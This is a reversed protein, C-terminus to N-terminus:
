CRVHELATVVTQLFVADVGPRVRLVVGRPFLIEISSSGAAMSTPVPTAQAAPVLPVQVFDTSTVAAPSPPKSVGLRKAWYSLLHAGVQHERAFASRSLGSRQWDDILARGRITPNLKLVRKASTPQTQM